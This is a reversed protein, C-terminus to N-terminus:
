KLWKRLFQEFTMDEKLESIVADSRADYEQEGYINLPYISEKIDETFFFNRPGLRLFISGKLKQYIKALPEIQSQYPEFLYRFKPTVQNNKELFERIKRVSPLQQLISNLGLFFVILVAIVLSLIMLVM